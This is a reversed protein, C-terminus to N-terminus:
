RLLGQFRGLIDDGLWKGIRGEKGGTGEEKLHLTSNGKNLGGPVGTMSRTQRNLEM